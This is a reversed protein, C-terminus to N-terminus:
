ENVRSVGAVLAMNGNNVCLVAYESGNLAAALDDAMDADWVAALVSLPLGLAVFPSCGAATQIARMRRPMRELLEAVRGFFARLRGGSQAAEANALVVVCEAEGRARCREAAQQVWGREVALAVMREREACGFDGVAVM